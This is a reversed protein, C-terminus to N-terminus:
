FKSGNDLNQIVGRRVFSLYLAGGGRSDVLFIVQGGGEGFVCVCM